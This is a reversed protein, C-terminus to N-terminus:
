QDAQEAGLQAYYAAVARVEEDTLREAVTKMLTNPDNSRTGNQWNKIQGEIYTVSQGSLAPFAKGIGQGISGHCQACAPVEKAWLGRQAIKEGQAVLGPNVTVMVPKPELTSFYRSVAQIEEDTMNTVVGQMLPNNRSGNRFDDMQKALYRSHLGALKPFGAAANGMGDAGHCSNCAAAGSDSGQSAIKQGLDGAAIAQGGMLGATVWGILLAQKM